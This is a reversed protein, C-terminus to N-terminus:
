SIKNTLQYDKNIIINANNAQKIIINQEISLINEIFDTIEERNREKRQELTDKYTREIFIKLDINELYNVYTGEVVLIKVKELDIEEEAISDAGYNVLPKEIKTKTSKFDDINQQLRELNVENLGVNNINKVRSAHNTKPPLFFYDDQQLKITNFGKEKLVLKLIESTVSKGSGSEGAVSICIKNKDLLKKDVIEIYIKEALSFYEEKITIKDGIM